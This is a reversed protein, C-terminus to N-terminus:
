LYITNSFRTPSHLSDDSNDAVSSEEKEPFLHCAMHKSDKLIDDPPMAAVNGLSTAEM